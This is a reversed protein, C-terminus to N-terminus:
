AATHTFIESRNSGGCWRSCLSFVLGAAAIIVLRASMSKVVYLIAICAAQILPAIICTITLTMSFISDTEFGHMQYRPNEPFVYHGVYWFFPKILKFIVMKSFSDVIPSDKLVCLEPNIPDGKDGYICADEGTLSIIGKGSLGLFGRFDEMYFKNPSPMHAIQSDQILAHSYKDLSDSMERMAGHFLDKDEEVDCSDATSPWWVIEGTQRCLDNFAKAKQVVNAQLYARRQAREFGFRPHIAQEPIKSMREFFRDNTTPQPHASLCEPSPFDMAAAMRLGDHPM